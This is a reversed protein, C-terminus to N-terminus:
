KEIQRSLKAISSKIKDKSPMRDIRQFLVRGRRFYEAAKRKRGENLFERTTVIRDAIKVVLVEIPACQSLSKLHEARANDFDEFSNYDATEFYISRIAAALSEAFAFGSDQIIDDFTWKDFDATKYLDHGLALCHLFPYDVESFGWETLQRAVALPHEIFPREEPGRRFQGEHWKEALTKMREVDSM